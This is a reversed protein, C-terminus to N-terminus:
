SISQNRRNLFKGSLKRLQKREKSLLSAVSSSTVEGLYVPKKAYCSKSLGIMFILFLPLALVILPITKRKLLVFYTEHLKM